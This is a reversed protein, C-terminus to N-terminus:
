FCYILKKEYETKLDQLKIVVYATEKADETIKITERVIIPNETKAEKQKCALLCIFILTQVIIRM